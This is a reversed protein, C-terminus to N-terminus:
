PVFTIASTTDSAIVGNDFHMEVVFRYSGPFSPPVMLWLDDPEHTPYFDKTNLFDNVVQETSWSAGPGNIFYDNLVSGAPHTSDFNQLSTVYISTPKNGPEYTNEDNVAYYATQDSTYNIRIVYSSDNVSTGSAEHIFPGANDFNTLTIGTTYYVITTRKCGFSFLSLMLVFLYLPLRKM